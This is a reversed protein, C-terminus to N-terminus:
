MITRLAAALEGAVVSGETFVAAAVPLLALLGLILKTPV